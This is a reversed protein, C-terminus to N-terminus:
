PALRADPHGWRRDRSPACLHDRNRKLAAAVYVKGLQLLQRIRRDFARCAAQYAEDATKGQALALDIQADSELFFRAGEDPFVFVADYGFFARCGNSVLDAGLDQATDCSLFHVITGDVEQPAYLGVELISDRNQGTFRERFGHGSGTIFDVTGPALAPAVNARAAAAGEFRQLSVNVELEPYVHEDRYTRCTESVIEDDSDVAVARIM